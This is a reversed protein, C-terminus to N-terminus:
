REHDKRFHAALDRAGHIVQVVEIGDPIPEYFVVLQRVTFFRIHPALEPRRQGLEPQSAYRLCAVRIRDLAKDAVEVSATEVLHQWIGRVDDLAEPLFILV